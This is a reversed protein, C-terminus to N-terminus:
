CMRGNEMTYVQDALRLTSRRHSVLVVTRTGRAADLARLIMAENLSDLNSTPEDLLLFASDHLFARALGLRQRQGGSLTDGLEGVCTDYGQPLSIIFDHVAAMRCARELEAQTADRKAVRLNAAISDHFLQTEQTVYGEMARLDSTNIHEIDRDSFTIHGREVQWFRMMLKLLTSKGSGSKGAIGIVKGEPFDLSVDRLITEDDYAFSVHAVQAGAFTLPTEGRVDTVVPREDLLALVRAAAALTNQLTSGLGALAVSPGFSSFLALTALLVGDASLAGKQLLQLSVLLMALDFLLILTQTMAQNRGLLRKQRAEAEALQTTRANIRELRARGQGYQLIEPLGRLSELVDSALAGSQKRLHLATEGSRASTWLPIGVGVILYASLALLGLLPHISAIFLCMGGSFIAAIAVPSITHAYFVELLEIDSTILAILDGKDRGELKAPCLRRLARFVQDRLLALLKFAIYHNSMQEGYRLLGRLLAAAVLGGFLWALPAVSSIGALSLLAYGSLVTIGSACVHGMVGLFIALAMYGALPRVLVMLRMITHRNKRERM